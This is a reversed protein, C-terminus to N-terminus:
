SLVQRAEARLGRLRQAMPDNGQEVLVREVADFVELLAAGFEGAQEQIMALAEADDPISLLENIFRLEPEMNDQLIAVVLNYVQKLLTVAKQNKNKEAQQINAALVAMFTDDIMHVNARLFEEPQKHNVAAQLFAAANKMIAQSQQDILKTLALLRDRLHTLSEKQQNKASDIKEALLQFFEYDFAPRAMGVLAQLRDYDGMYLIALKLFDDRGAREGCQELAGAVDQLSNEQAM